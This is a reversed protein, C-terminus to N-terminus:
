FDPVRQFYKFGPLGPDTTDGCVRYFTANGTESIAFGECRFFPALGTEDVCSLVAKKLDYRGNKEQHFNDDLGEYDCSSVRKWCENEMNESGEPCSREVSAPKPNLGPNHPELDEIDGAVSFREFRPGFGTCEPHIEAVQSGEIVTFIRLQPNYSKVPDLGSLLRSQHGNADSMSNSDSIEEASGPSDRDAGEDEDVAANSDSTGQALGLAVPEVTKHAKMLKKAKVAKLPKAVQNAGPINPRVSECRNEPGVYSIPLGRFTKGTLGLGHCAIGARHCAAKKSM